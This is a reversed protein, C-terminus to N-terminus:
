VGPSKNWGLWYEGFTEILASFNEYDVPKLLYSNAQQRYAKAVDAEASSTTLIVVPITSLAENTKIENLVELGDVRPLRLDLLVVDPRPHAAAEDPDLSSKLYELAQEGDAVHHIEHPAGADEFSAMTLEAHAPDDEVYLVLLHNERQIKM